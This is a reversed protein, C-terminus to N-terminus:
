RVLIWLHARLEGLPGCGLCLRVQRERELPTFAFQRRQCLYRVAILAARALQVAATGAFLARIGVM